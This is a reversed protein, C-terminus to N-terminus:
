KKMSKIKKYSINSKKRLFMGACSPYVHPKINNKVIWMIKLSKNGKQSYVNNYKIIM